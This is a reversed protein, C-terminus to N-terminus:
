RLDAEVIRFEVGPMPAGGNHFCRGRHEVRDLALHTHGFYVNRIGGGLEDELEDLYRSLRELVTKRAFLLRAGMVHLRLAVVLDYIRAQGESRSRHGATGLRAARLRMDNMRPNCADGHLFVANGLRLHFPHWEFRAEVSALAELRDILEPVHDHNGLVYHVRCTGSQDLLEELWERAADATADLSALRSWKFDVIDGALVLTRAQQAAGHIRPMHEDVRSRKTFLHLDSVVICEERHHENVPFSANPGM